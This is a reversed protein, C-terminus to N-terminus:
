RRDVQCLVSLHKQVPFPILLTLPLYLLTLLLFLTLLPLLLCHDRCISLKISFTCSLVPFMVYLRSPCWSLSLSFIQSDSGVIASSLLWFSCLCCSFVFIMKSISAVPLCPSMFYSLWVFVLLLVEWTLLFANGPPLPSQSRLIVSQVFSFCPTKWESCSVVSSGIYINDILFYIYYDIYIYVFISIKTLIFKKKKGQASFTLHLGWVSQPERHVYGADSHDPM